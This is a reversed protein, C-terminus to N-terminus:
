GYCPLLVVIVMAVCRIMELIAFEVSFKEANNRLRFVCRAM